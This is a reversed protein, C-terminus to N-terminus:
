YYPYYWTGCTRDKIFQDFVSYFYLKVGLIGYRKSVYYYHYSFDMKNMFSFVYIQESLQQDFYSEELCVNFDGIEPFGNIKWVDKKPVAQYYFLLQDQLVNFRGKEPNLYLVANCVGRIFGMQESTKDFGRRYRLIKYNKDQLGEYYDAEDFWVEPLTKYISVFGQESTDIFCIGSSRITTDGKMSRWLIIHSDPALPCLNCTISDSIDPFLTFCSNGAQSFLSNTVIFLGVFLCIKM